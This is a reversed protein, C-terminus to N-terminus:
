LPTANEIVSLIIAREAIATQMVDRGNKDVSVGIAVAAHACHVLADAAELILNRERENIFMRYMPM